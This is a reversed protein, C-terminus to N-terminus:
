VLKVSIPAKVPRDDLQRWKIPHDTFLDAINWIVAPFSSDKRSDDKPSKKLISDWGFGGFCVIANSLNTSEVDLDVQHWIAESFQSSAKCM